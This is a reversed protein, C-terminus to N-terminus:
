SIPRAPSVPRAPPPGGFSPPPGFTPPPGFAPPSVPRHHPPVPRAPSVPRTWGADDAEPASHRGGSPPGATWSHRPDPPDLHSHPDGYSDDWSAHPVDWHTM